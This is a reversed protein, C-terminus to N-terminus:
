GDEYGAERLGQRFAAVFPAWEAPAATGLFGIVPMSPQQARAVVPWAAVTGGLLALIARRNV